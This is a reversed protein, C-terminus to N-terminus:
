VTYLFIRCCLCASRQTGPWGPCHLSVSDGFCIIYYFEQGVSLLRKRTKPEEHRTLQITQRIRAHTPMAQGNGTHTPMAQRSGTHTAVDREREGTCEQFTLVTNKTKKLIFRRGPLLEILASHSVSRGQPFLTM